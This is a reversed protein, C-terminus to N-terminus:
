ANLQKKLEEAAVSPDAAGQTEKMVMGVFFKFVAEKGSKYEEVQKPNNAIIDTVIRAIAGTDSVQGLEHEEMLHSPDAGGSALMLDLLKQANTSNIKGEFIITLFEAFNEPSISIDTISKKQEVLRAILKSTIWGAVLKTMKEKNAEPDHGSSQMWAGFESYVTEAYDGLAKDAVFVDVDQRMFGYEKAFRERRAAPLEPLQVQEAVSRLNMPPIDPEPFYRYDAADEKTRQETTVQKDDDWGRTTTVAPPNGEEWLATQREIEHLIAREVARFSNVNKIETKPHLEVDDLNIEDDDKLPLLSVNVDCRLQGKEMDADSVGLYRMILRLEQLYAKAEAASRLDPESVIEALPTGARNFDVVSTGSGHILKAADEELHLRTIGVQKEFPEGHDNFVEIRVVGNEGVPQDFQSIQYGKPLDPYFYNKRDFKSQENIHCNLGLAAKVGMAIAEANPAPLSGPQGTCIPCIASNRQAGDPVNACACFMKTQTKLQVHIELGIVPLYQM